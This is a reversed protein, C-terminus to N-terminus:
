HIYRTSWFQWVIISWLINSHDFKCNLHEQWIRSVYSSNLLGLRDIESPQLLESAWDKLPGRLWNSMPVSFGHKPRSTITSPLYRLLLSRLIRKGSLAGPSSNFLYDSPLSWAFNFLNLDLFPSRVELSNAMSARDVKTLIDSPLYFQTDFLMFSHGLDLSKLNADYLESYFPTDFLFHSPKTLDGFKLLHSTNIRTLLSNYINYSDPESLLAHVLKTLSSQTLGSSVAPLRSLLKAFM